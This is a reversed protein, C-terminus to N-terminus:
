NRSGARLTGAGREVSWARVIAESRATDSRSLYSMLSGSSLTYSYSVSV